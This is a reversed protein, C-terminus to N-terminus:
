KLRGGKLAVDNVSAASMIFGLVFRREPAVKFLNAFYRRVDAYGLVMEAGVAM